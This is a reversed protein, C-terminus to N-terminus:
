ETDRGLLYSVFRSIEEPSPFLDPYARSISVRAVEIMATSEIACVQAAGAQLCMLGLVGSGCGIDAVCDGPRIVHAIAERFQELRIRDNVYGLHEELM